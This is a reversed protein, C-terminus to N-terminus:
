FQALEGRLKKYDEWKFGQVFKVAADIGLVFLEAKKVSSMDFDLWDYINEDIEIDCILQNYDKNQEIFVKDSDRRATNFIAVLYRLISEKKKGADKSKEDLRVGFTPTLPIRSANHFVNIPFNSVVGGDVFVAKDGEATTKAIAANAIIASTARYPYFFVPVAMTARLYEAPNIQDPQSWYRTRQEPFKAMRQETVETAVVVLKCQTFATGGFHALDTGNNLGAGMRAPVVAFGDPLTSIKKLLGSTDTIGLEKLEAKAWNLFTNGPHIGLKTLVRYLLPVAHVIIQLLSKKGAIVRTFAVAFKGGDMFTKIQMRALIDMLRESRNQEPSGAAALFLANIAGASTGAINLFRIGMQELAYTYGVLAIGLVGGGEMVVDVYQYGAADTVDSIPHDKIHAAVSKLRATQEATMASLFDVVPPESSEVDFKFINRLKQLLSKNSM